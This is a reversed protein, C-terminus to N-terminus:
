GIKKESKVKAGKHKHYNGRYEVLEIACGAGIRVNTGRVSHARTHEISIDDGEITNTVLLGSLPPNSLLISRFMEKLRAVSWRNVRITEGGIESISCEGRLKIDVRGANLLGGVAVQGTSSFREAECNEKVTLYGRTRLDGAKVSGRADLGGRVILEEAKISGKAEMNGAITMRNCSVNGGVVGSGVIRASRSKLNGEIRSNGVCKLSLSDLDSEIVADGVITAETFYGGPSNSNGIIRLARRSTDDNM